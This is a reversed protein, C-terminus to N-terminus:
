GVKDMGAINLKDMGLVETKAEQSPNWMKSQKREQHFWRASLKKSVTIKVPGKDSKQPAVSWPFFMQLLKWGKTQEHCYFVTSLMGRTISLWLEQRNIEELESPNGSM